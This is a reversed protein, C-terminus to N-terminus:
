VIGGRRPQSINGRRCEHRSAWLGAMAALILWTTMPLVLARVVPGGEDLAFSWAAIARMGSPNVFLALLILAGGCAMGRSVRREAEMAAYVLPLALITLDYSRHYFFLSADLATLACVAGRPLTEKWAGRLLALGLIALIGAQIALIEGRDRMGLRYLAHDLGVLSTHAPGDYGYDNVQGPGQTARIAHLTRVVRHPVEAPRSNLLCLALCTIPISVWTRRDGKRLFLIAFPLATNVKITAVALFAGALAPRGSGQALLAALIAATGLLSVQGLSLNMGQACSLAMAASLLGLKVRSLRPADAGMQSRLAAHALPVIGLVGLANMAYWLGAGDRLKLAAFARFLPLATPPNLIPQREGRLAPAFDDLGAALDRGVQWFLKYDYPLQYSTVARALGLVIGLTTIARWAALHKPKPRARLAGIAVLLIAAAGLDSILHFREM